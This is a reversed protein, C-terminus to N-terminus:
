FFLIFYIRVQHTIDPRCESPDRGRKKLLTRHDDCNLLRYEDKVKATELSAQELIIILREGDKDSPNRPLKPEDESLRPRKKGRASDASGIEHRSDIGIDDDEMKKGKRKKKKKTN